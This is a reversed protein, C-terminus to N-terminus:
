HKTIYMDKRKMPAVEKWMLTNRNLQHGRNTAPSGGCILLGAEAAWKVKLSLSHCNHTSVFGNSSIQLVEVESITSGYGHNGGIVAIQLDSIGFNFM